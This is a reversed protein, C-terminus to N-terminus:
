KTEKEEFPLKLILPLARLEGMSSFWGLNIGMDVLKRDNTDLDTIKIKTAGKIVGWELALIFLEERVTRSYKQMFEDISECTYDTANSHADIELETPDDYNLNANMAGIVRNIRTDILALMYANENDPPTTNRLVYPPKETVLTPAKKASTKKPTTAKSAKTPRTETPM